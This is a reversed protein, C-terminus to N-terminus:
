HSVGPQVKDEQGLMYHKNIYQTHLLSESLDSLPEGLFKTYLTQIEPNEWSARIQKLADLGYLSEIRARKAPIEQPLKTRPQGGGGICGGPCAM